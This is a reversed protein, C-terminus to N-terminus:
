DLPHVGKAHLEVQVEIVGEVEQAIRQRGVERQIRHGFFNHLRVGRSRWHTRNASMSRASCGWWTTSPPSAPADPSPQSGAKMSCHCNPPSAVDECRMSSRMAIGTQRTYFSNVKSEDFTELWNTLTTGTSRRSAAKHLAHSRVDDVRKDVGGETLHMRASKRIERGHALLHVIEELVLHDVGGAHPAHAPVDHLVHLVEALVAQLSRRQRQKDLADARGRPTALAVHHAMCVAWM